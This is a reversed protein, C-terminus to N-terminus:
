NMQAVEDHGAIPIRYRLDGAAVRDLGRVTEALPRTISRSVV